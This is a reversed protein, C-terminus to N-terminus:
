VRPRSIIGRYVRLPSQPKEINVGGAVFDGASDQCARELCPKLCLTRSRIKKPHILRWSKQIAQVGTGNYEPPIPSKQSADVAYSRPSPRRLIPVTALEKACGRFKSRGSKWRCHLHLEKEGICEKKRRCTCLNVHYPEV